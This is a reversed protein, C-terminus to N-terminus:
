ALNVNFHPKQNIQPYKSRKKPTRLSRRVKSPSPMKTEEQTNRPRSRKRPSTIDTPMDSTRPEDVRKLLVVPLNKYSSSLKLKLVLPNDEDDSSVISYNLIASQPSEDITM